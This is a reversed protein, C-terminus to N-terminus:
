TEMAVYRSSLCMGSLAPFMTALAMPHQSLDPIADKNSDTSLAESLIRLPANMIESDLNAFATQIALSVYKPDADFSGQPPVVATPWFWSRWSQFVSAKPVLVSPSDKLTALELTVSPILTKSLLRSTHYGGHGDMVAFLLMDGGTPSEEKSVFGSANADEIPSNSGLFATCQKWVIGGPRQTSVSSAHEKLRSEAESISLLPFSRAVRVPKGDAGRERVSLIFTEKSNSSFRYRYYAYSPVGVLLTTGLVPKWARRLM